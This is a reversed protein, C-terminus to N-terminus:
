KSEFKDPRTEYIVTAPERDLCATQTFLECGDVVHKATPNAYILVLHRPAVKYSAMINELVHELVSAKFPNFFYLVCPGAPLKFQTADAHTASMQAVVNRSEQWVSLNHRAVQHLQGSLEVGIIRAFPYESALLLTRGKGSGFDIFNYNQFAIKQQSLTLHFWEPQTAMYGWGRQQDDTNLDLAEIPILGGTDLGHRRDFHHEKYKWYWDRDTFSFLNALCSLLTMGLGRYHFSWWLRQGHSALSPINM